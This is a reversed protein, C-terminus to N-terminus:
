KLVSKIRVRTMGWVRWLRAIEQARKLSLPATEGKFKGTYGTVIYKKVRVKSVM